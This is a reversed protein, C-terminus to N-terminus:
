TEIGGEGNNAITNGSITGNAKSRIDIGEEGNNEFRNNIFYLHRSESYLGKRVNNTIASDWIEVSNDLLKNNRKVWIGIKKAKEIICNRITSKKYAPVVLGYNGGRVTINEIISNKGLTISAGGLNERDIIVTDRNSGSLVAYDPFTLEGEFYNGPKIQITRQNEPNDEAIALASSITHYPKTEGGDEESNSGNVDVYIDAAWATETFSLLVFVPLITILKALKM